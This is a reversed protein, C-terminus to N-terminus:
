AGSASRWTPSFFIENGLAFIERTVLNAELFHPVPSSVAGSSYGQKKAIISARMEHYWDTVIALDANLGEAAIIEESFKINEETNVSRDEKYLRDASIGKETLYDYMCQAESINEGSGKGGSLICKADPNECLYSYATDLRTKLMLSPENGRVQCGLVVVTADKEPMVGAGYGMMVFAAGVFVVFAAALVGLAALVVKGAKNKWMKVFLRKILPFLVAFLAIFGFFAVGVISGFSVIHSNIYWDIMYLSVLVITIRLLIGVIFFATIKNDKM